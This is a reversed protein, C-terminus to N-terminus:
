LGTNIVQVVQTYNHVVLHKSDPSFDLGECYAKFIRYPRGKEIEWIIVLNDSSCSALYHGDKTYSLSQVGEFHGMLSHKLKFTKADWIMVLKDNDRSGRIGSTAAALTKGNPSFAV